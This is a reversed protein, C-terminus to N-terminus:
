KELEGWGWGEERDVIEGGERGLPVKKTLLQSPSDPRLYRM